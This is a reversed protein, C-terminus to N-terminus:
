LEVTKVIRLAYTISQLDVYWQPDLDQGNETRKNIVWQHFAGLDALILKVMELQADPNMDRVTVIAEEEASLENAKALEAPSNIESLNM